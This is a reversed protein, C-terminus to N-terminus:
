PKQQQREEWVKCLTEQVAGEIGTSVGYQEDTLVQWMAKTAEELMREELEKRVSEFLKKRNGLDQASKYAKSKSILEEAKERLGKHQKLEQLAKLRLKDFTGADTIQKLVEQSDLAASM